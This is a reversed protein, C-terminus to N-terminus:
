PEGGYRKWLTWAALRMAWGAIVVVGGIALLKMAQGPIAPAPSALALIVGVLLVTIGAARVVTGSLSLLLLPKRTRAYAEALRQARVADPWALIAWLVSGAIVYVVEDDM